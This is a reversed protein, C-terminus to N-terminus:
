SGATTPSCTGQYRLQVIGNEYNKTQALRLEESAVPGDFLPIGAGLLVPILSIIYETILGEARFAAALKGGGVLWARRFGEAEIHKVAKSPTEGMFRVAAESLDTLTRSFIWCPKGPYPWEQFGLSQEYTQRGLLVCDISAYFEAYGYDEAGGEFPKLWDIGGDPMAIFGDVSAAVYYVIEM